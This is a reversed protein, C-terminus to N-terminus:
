FLTFTLKVFLNDDFNGQNYAGFRYYVGLGLYSILKNVEIGAEQYYNNPVQFHYLSHLDQHDMNGILANYVLAIQIKKEDWLKIDNFRHTFFLAVYRDAFFDGSIITELSHFGKVSFRNFVSSGTKATGFSGYLNWLSTKGSIYGSNLFFNSTGWLNKLSIDSSFDFKQYDFDANLEKWNKTYNFYFYVPKDKITLKGDPTQMYEAFPAYKINISTALQNFWHDPDNNEYSYPFESKQTQYNVVFSTTFRKFFDQKYSIEGKKFSYFLSNQIFNLEEKLDNMSEPRRVIEKSYPNVDLYGDVSLKGDYKKNIFFDIGAAGKFNKDKTGYAAYKHVSFTKSLKNNSESGIQFRFGEYDNYSILNALDLNFRKFLPYEGKKVSSLTRINKEIPFQEFLSSSHYTQEEKSNLPTPRYSSIKSDANKDFDEKLEYTYGQFDKRTFSDPQSFDSTHSQIVLWPTLELKQVPYKKGLFKSFDFNNFKIKITKNGPYWVDHFLEWNLDFYRNYDMNYEEGSYKVVAFSSADIYLFGRSGNLLISRKSGFSIVYTKRENILISDTLRFNYLPFDEKLVKPFDEGFIQDNYLEYYPEKFGSIQGAIVTNKKGYKRDYKYETVKEGLFLLETASPNSIGISDINTSYSYKLDDVFFKTYVYYQYSNLHDPNNKEQNQITNKLIKFVYPNNGLSQKDTQAIIFVPLTLFFFFVIKKLLDSHFIHFLHIKM